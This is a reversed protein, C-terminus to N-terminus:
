FAQMVGKGLKQSTFGRNSKRGHPTMSDYKHKSSSVGNISSHPLLAHDSSSSAIAVHTSWKKTAFTVPTPEHSWQMVPTM